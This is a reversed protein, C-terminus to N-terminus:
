AIRAMTMTAMTAAAMTQYSLSRGTHACIAANPSPPTGAARPQWTTLNRAIARVKWRNNRPRLWRMGIGYRNPQPIAMTNKLWVTGEIPVEPLANMYAARCRRPTEPPLATITVMRLM